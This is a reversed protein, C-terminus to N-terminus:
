SFGFISASPNHHPLMRSKKVCIIPRPILTLSPTILKILFAPWPRSMRVCSSLPQRPRWTCRQPCYLVIHVHGRGVSRYKRKSKIRLQLLPQFLEGSRHASAAREHGCFRYSFVYGQIVPLNLFCPLCDGFRVRTVESSLSFDLSRQPLPRATRTLHSRLASALRLASASNMAWSLGAAATRTTLVM